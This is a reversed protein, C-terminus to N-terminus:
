EGFAVGLRVGYTRPEAWIGRQANGTSNLVQRRYREDTLNRGWLGLTWRGNTIATSADLLGLAGEDSQPDVKNNDAEFFIKDRWAYALRANVAGWKTERDYNLAASVTNKPSRAMRNGSFDLVSNFQYRDFTADLYGYNFDVSWNPTLDLSGEFEVGEITSSAANNIVVLSVGAAVPVVRLQQLDKYDMKFAAGNLRLRRDFWTSKFGVEYNEVDEPNAVQNAVLPATAIFQFAGSKYGTAWSAYAMLDDSFKYRVSLSPDFSDWKRSVPTVFPTIIFGPVTTRTDFVVDKEDESYRGGLTVGLAPTPTWEFQGFAATSTSELDFGFSWVLPAPTVLARLLSAPGFDIGEVRTVNEKSYYLGVLWNFKTNSASLRLEQSIQDGNERATYLQFPLTTGDLDDREDFDLKRYASISTLDVSGLAWDVQASGGSITKKIAQDNRDSSPRYPDVPQAPATFGPTLPGPAPRTGGLSNPVLILPPGDMDAYDAALRVKLRDSAHIVTKGRVSYSDESGGRVSTGQVPQYGERFRHSLSLSGDVKGPSLAGSISGNVAYLTDGSIASSGIETAARARFVDTPDRTVVSLAGGITNRGYLTGQPGKLIEIREIDLLDMDLAGFRGQYVGDIFVGVSPDSGADYGRTGVGRVFILPKTRDAAEFFVNSTLRAVSNLETYGAKELTQGGIASLSMPVDQLREERKRATVIIEDRRGAKASEDATQAVALPAGILLASTSFLAALACRELWIRHGSM